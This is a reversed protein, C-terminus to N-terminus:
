SGAHRQLLQALRPVASEVHKKATPRLKEYLKKVSATKARAARSDTVYLLKEAVDGTRGNLYDVFSRGGGDVKWSAYVPELTAVWEDLMADVVEGVFSPKVAKVVSYAGKIALGTIGGKGHVEDEILSCCDLVVKERIPPKTMKDALDSM